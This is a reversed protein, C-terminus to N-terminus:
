VESSDRCLLGFTHKAIHLKEAQVPFIGLNLSREAALCQNRVEVAHLEAESRWVAVFRLCCSGSHFVRRRTFSVADIIRRQDFSHSCRLM